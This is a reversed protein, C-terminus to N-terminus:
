RSQLADLMIGIAVFVRWDLQAAAPDTVSLEYHDLLTTTKSYSGVVQDDAAIFDFHYRVFFPIDGLIPLFSWLRRVVALAASRERVLFLAKAEKGPAFIEWTSRLISQGFRKGVVGLLQGDPTKIDYRAGLDIVQRAQVTFIASTKSEDAFVEFKERLAFRKQHVFAVLKAADASAGDYVRYQNALPTIKQEIKFTPM